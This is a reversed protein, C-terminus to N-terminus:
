NVSFTRTWAVDPGAKQVFFSTAVPITPGVPGPDDPNVSFWGFGGFYQYAEKYTQTPSNFIFVVDGEAAPFNLTNPTATDGIPLAQPVQSGVIQYANGGRLQNSLNGQPVEGVFTVNLPTPGSPQIFVGVGPPLTLWNPDTDVTFWGFGAFFQIAEGYNQVAPKFRFITTGDASAPLPLITNLSNDTGNLPNAILTYGNVLSLNVYGVANVSYVQASSAAVGAAGLAITLLLTKTRM